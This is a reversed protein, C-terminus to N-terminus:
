ENSLSLNSKSTNRKFLWGIAKKLKNTESFNNNEEIIEPTVTIPHIKNEFSSQSSKSRDHVSAFNFKTEATQKPVKGELYVPYLDTVYEHWLASLKIREEKQEKDCRMPRTMLMDIGVLTGDKDPLRRINRPKDDQNTFALGIEALKERMDEVDAFTVKSNPVYPYSKISYTNTSTEVVHESIPPLIYPDEDCFSDRSIKFVYGDGTYLALSQMSESSKRTLSIFQHQGLERLKELIKFHAEHDHELMRATDNLPMAACAWQAISLFNVPKAKQYGDPVTM